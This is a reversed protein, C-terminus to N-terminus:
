PTPPTEMLNETGEHRSRSSTDLVVHRVCNMQVQLRQPRSVMGKSTSPWIMTSHPFQSLLHVNLRGLLRSLAVIM